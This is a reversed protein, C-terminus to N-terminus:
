LETLRKLGERDLLDFERGSAQIFGRTALFRLAENVRQRSGGIMSALEGQTVPPTRTGTGGAGDALVLLQRAVRGKLNLFALDTVQQTIRQSMTALSRLLADAVQKESRLLHLLEVRTIVLLTSCEVAQATALRPGGDLVALEGFVDPPYHRVLESVEGDRSLLFLKVVGQSLIFMRDGPEGQWYIMQGRELTQESLREALRLQSADDMGQFLDTRALVAARHQLNM